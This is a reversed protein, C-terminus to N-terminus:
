KRQVVNSCQRLNAKWGNNDWGCCVPAAFTKNQDLVWEGVIDDVCVNQVCIQAVAEQEEGDEEQEEKKEQQQMKLAAVEADEIQSQPQKM